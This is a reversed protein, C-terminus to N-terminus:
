YSLIKTNVKSFVNEAKIDHHLIQHKHLFEVSEVLQRTITRTTQENLKEEEAIKNWLDGGRALDTVLYFSEETEFFDILSM